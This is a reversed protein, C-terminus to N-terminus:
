LKFGIIAEVNLILIKMKFYDWLFREIKLYQYSKDSVKPREEKKEKKRCINCIFVYIVYIVYLFM